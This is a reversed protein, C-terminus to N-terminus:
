VKALSHIGGAVIAKVGTLGSVSVPVNSDTNTGNGLQGAGNYGWAKMTGTTLL